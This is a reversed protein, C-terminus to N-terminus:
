NAYKKGHKDINAFINHGEKKKVSESIKYQRKYNEFM